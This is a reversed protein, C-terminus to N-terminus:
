LVTFVHRVYNWLRWSEVSRFDTERTLDFIRIEISCVQKLRESLIALSSRICSRCLHDFLGHPLPRRCFPRSLSLPPLTSSPGQHVDGTSPSEDALSSSLRSPPNESSRARSSALSLALALLSSCPSFFLPPSVAPPFLAPPFRCPVSSSRYRAGKEGRPHRFSHAISLQIGELQCAYGRGAGGACGPPRSLEEEQGREHDERRM